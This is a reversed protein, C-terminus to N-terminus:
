RKRGLFTYYPVRALPLYPVKARHETFRVPEFRWHLYPVHDPSPYVNDRDFWGRWFLRTLWSHRARGADPYKRAVYFDVVGLHGGPKLLAHARELAAFWDPIMTLSYSCTVLDVGDVPLEVQTADALIPEVNTWGRAEIRRRAVDLLSPTLDVLFVRSCERIRDGVRELNEGTGGGLDVWVSGPGLPVGGFLEDRGQLLRARFRDYGEAQDRYFSELREQHTGGRIPALLLHYLIKLDSAFSM